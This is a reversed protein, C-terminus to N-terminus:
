IIWIREGELALKEEIVEFLDKNIKIKIKNKPLTTKNNLVSSIEGLSTEALSLFYERSQGKLLSAKKTFSKAKNLRYILYSKPISRLNSLYHFSDGKYWIGNLLAELVVFDKVDDFDKESYVHMEIKKGFVDFKLGSLDEDGVVCLDIDSETTSTNQAVSGFLIFMSVKDKIQDFILNVSNKFEAPLAQQREIMFLDYLLHAYKCESNIQYVKKRGSEKELVIKNDILSRIVRLINSKSVCIEESLKTLGFQKHPELTLKRLVTLANKSGLLQELKLVM